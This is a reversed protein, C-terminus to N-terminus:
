ATASVQGGVQETAGSSLAARLQGGSFSITASQIPEADDIEEGNIKAQINAQSVQIREAALRAIEFRARSALAQASSAISRDTSSPNAPALAARAVQEAKRLTAQPNGSVGSTSISVSGGVAYRVGNPGTTYVYSPAGAHVGGVSAHAQEHAKVRRDTTALNRIVSLDRLEQQRQARTDVASTQTDQSAETSPRETATQVSDDASQESNGFIQERLQATIEARAADDFARQANAGKNGASENVGVTEPIREAAKNQTIVAETSLNATNLSVSYATSGVALM